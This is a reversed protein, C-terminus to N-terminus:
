AGVPATGQAARRCCRCKPGGQRSTMRDAPSHRGLFSHESDAPRANFGARYLSTRRMGHGAAAPSHFCLHVGSEPGPCICVSPVQPPTATHSGETAARKSACGRFVADTVQTRGRSDTIGMYEKCQILKNPTQERERNSWRCFLPPGAKDAVIGYLAGCGEVISANM